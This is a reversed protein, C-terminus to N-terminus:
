AYKQSFEFSSSCTSIHSNMNCTYVYYGTQQAFIERFRFDPEKLVDVKVNCM